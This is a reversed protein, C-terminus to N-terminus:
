LPADMVLSILTWSCENNPVLMPPRSRWQSLKIDCRTGTHTECPSIGCGDAETMGERDIGKSDSRAARIM